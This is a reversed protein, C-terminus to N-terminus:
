AAKDSLGRGRLLADVGPMRGRFQTYLTAADVSGGQSLVTAELRQALVPDFPDGAATFADFADADMVESWMYSYYGSSYGDGAFVHAFHPTAHRMGIAHPMDLSALVEAEKQMPDSPAPGAHFELDVMASAIYEVTQFGMDYTAAALMRDLMDQPMAEGTTAHTAFTQLVEPVELWHEFLQSPLEVFDRAVSTGSVSEYTVDSLMQHLAHGFEHFLTRADDYSLLAPKGAGPKAFNCVNLVIPRVDGSLRQQSRMAMCWAGSRKSARAFYDGMFVAVHQGDRTVEWLRVDPHYVPGDLPAFELGFLRHACDFAAAIMRDLQLFPKLAAEDLDHEAQRRKESYYRWDWPELPGAIGDAHLLATLKDADALAAARAPTWVQMLLDRVADPTGAMETELKYTAFSAYGLLEAREARLALTEAALARNDTAGGNMGRATWAAYARQRLDRRPSFQLFPVILSRSLTVVPGPHGCAEGAARAADVVFEPLGGMDAETLSMSWDREDALLNQTFQTGLVALRSKVARLREAQAGQLQAGQRVFSRQTLMLVRAQEESLGLTDARAWLDAIRAFLQANGTVESGFASLLPAFDRQLAERAPTSDAGAIGYFVGLVRGLVAQAGELAAVTNDFTPAEPNEAIAAINVRAETLAAEVAPAFDTDAIATFPPLAHPTDWDSLLPNTM